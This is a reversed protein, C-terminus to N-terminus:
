EYSRGLGMPEVYQLAQSAKPSTVVICVSQESCREDREESTCLMVKQLMVIDRFGIVILKQIMTVVKLFGDM